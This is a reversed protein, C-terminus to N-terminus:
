KIGHYVLHDINVKFNLVQRPFRLTKRDMPYFLPKQGNPNKLTVGSRLQLDSAIFDGDSLKKFKKAELDGESGKLKKSFFRKLVREQEESRLAM